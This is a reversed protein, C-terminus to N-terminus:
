LRIDLPKGQDQIAQRSFTYHTQKRDDYNQLWQAVADSDIM